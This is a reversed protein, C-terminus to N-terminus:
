ATSGLFSSSGRSSRPVSTCKDKTQLNSFEEFSMVKLVPDLPRPVLSYSAFVAEIPKAFKGVLRRRAM